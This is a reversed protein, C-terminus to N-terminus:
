KMYLLFLNRKIYTNYINFVHTYIYVCTYVYTYIYTYM